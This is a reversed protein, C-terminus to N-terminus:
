SSGHIQDRVWREIDSLLWAVRNPGIAHAPPFTKGRRRYITATSLSTRAKVEKLSILRDDPAIRAADNM